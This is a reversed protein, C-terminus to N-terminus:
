AATSAVMQKRYIRWGLPLARIPTLSRHRVARLLARCGLMLWRLLVLLGCEVTTRALKRALIFHAAVMRTEYFISAMGSSASGEHGVLLRPVHIMRNQRGGTLRWGLEWDEGYMFFDEDFIRNRCVAPSFMLCCGSAYMFAGPLARDSILGTLRQYYVKGRVWGGHDIDPFAAWAEPSTRLAERLADLAGPLLHADNNILVIFRVPYRGHLWEVGRNVGASFGLNAGADVVSVRADDAFQQMLTKASAGNDDSNDWVLAHGAGEALLNRVCAATRVPDRYNLTLAAIDSM